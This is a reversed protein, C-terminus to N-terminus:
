NVLVKRRRGEIIDILKGRHLGVVGTASVTPKAATARTFATADVGIEFRFV